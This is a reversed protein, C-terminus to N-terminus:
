KSSELEEKKATLEDIKDAIAQIREDTIDKEVQVVKEVTGKKWNTFRSEKMAEKDEETMADFEAEPLNIADDYRSENGQDDIYIKTFRLQKFVQDAM